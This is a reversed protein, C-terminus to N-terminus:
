DLEEELRAVADRADDRATVAQDRDATAGAAEVRAEDAAELARDLREAAREARREALDAAREAQKLERRAESLQAELEKRRAAAEQRVAEERDDEVKAGSKKAPTKKERKATKAPPEWGEMMPWGGASESEKVVRGAEIAARVEEDAAAARLTQRIRELTTDSPKRGGPKLRAAAEVLADVARREGAAADRLAEAGGGSVADEQAARLAEGAALLADVEDGKDRRLRNIAWAAQSPKALKGVAAAADRDGEKRLAKAREGRERIFDELALGYLHEAAEDVPDTAM